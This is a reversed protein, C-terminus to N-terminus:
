KPRRKVFWLDGIQLGITFQQVNEKSISDGTRIGYKYAFDLQNNAAGFKIGFGLSIGIENVHENAKELLDERIYVGGRYQIKQALKFAVLPSFKTIGISWQTSQRVYHSLLPFLSNDKRGNDKWSHAELLFNLENQLLVNIGVGFETPSLVDHYNKIETSPVSSPQPFDLLDFYGNKEKDEFPQFSYHKIKVPKLVGGFALFINLPINGKNFRASSLFVKYLTGSYVHRQFYHYDRQDIQLMIDKRLSGFLVDLQLAMSEYNNLPFRLATYFSSIGGSGDVSRKTLLTDDDVYFEVEKDEIMFQQNFLPNVGFGWAYKNGFPVVFQASSVGSLGNIGLDSSYEDGKYNGTLYAFKLNNWTVPNALSINQSFSPVIGRSSIATAAANHNFNILGPGYANHLSQGFLLSSISFLILRHLWMNFLYNQFYHTM